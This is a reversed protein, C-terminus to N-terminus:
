NLAYATSALSRLETEPVCMLQRGAMQLELELPHWVRKQVRHDDENMHVPVGCVRRCM